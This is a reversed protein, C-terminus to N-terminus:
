AKFDLCTPLFPATNIDGAAIERLEKAKAVALAQWFGMGTAAFIAANLLSTAWSLLPFASWEPCQFACHRFENVSSFESSANKPKLALSKSPSKASSKFGVKGSRMGCLKAARM